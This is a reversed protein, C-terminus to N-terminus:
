ETRDPGVPVFPVPGVFGREQFQPTWEERLSLM